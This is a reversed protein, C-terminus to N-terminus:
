SKHLIFRDSLENISAPEGVITLIDHEQLVTNGKPVFSVNQREVFVVLVDRPLNAESIKKDILVHSPEDKAIAFSIYRQDHLMYEIIDDESEVPFIDKIFHDRESINMINTLMRLQQAPKSEDNVLFYLVKIREEGTHKEAPKIIGEECLVIHLVPHEIDPKKAYLLSVEPVVLAPDIPTAKLFEE